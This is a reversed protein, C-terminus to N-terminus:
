AVRHRVELSNAASEHLLAQALSANLRHGSRWAVIHGAIRRGVLALDGLLDVTKHRACEDDFRLVNDLPGDVDLVLLNEPTVRHGIGAALMADAESRLLFTRCPALEARFVDQTVELAISQPGIPSHPGYDLHYQVSLGGTISPRAELWAAETGVRRHSKVVLRDAAVGLDVLGAEDLAEVFPLASGDVCPLEPGSVRIECNDVGLGALAALVHEVMEVRVSGSALVTRREADVRYKLRAPVIPEGPLDSRVFLLGSGAEAPRFEVVVDEGSLYGFGRVLAPRDITRQTSSHLVTM